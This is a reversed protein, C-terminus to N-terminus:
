ASDSSVILSAYCTGWSFEGGDDFDYYSERQGRRVVRLRTYFGDYQTESLRDQTYEMRRLRWGADAMGTPTRVQVERWDETIETATPARGGTDTAWGRFHTEYIICAEQCDEECEYFLWVAVNEGSNDFVPRLEYSGPLARDEQTFRIYRFNGALEIQPHNLDVETFNSHADPWTDLVRQLPWEGLAFWEYVTGSLTSGDSDVVSGTEEIRNSPLFVPLWLEFAEFFCITPENRFDGSLQSFNEFDQVSIQGSLSGGVLRAIGTVSGEGEFEIIRAFDVDANQCFFEIREQLEDREEPSLQAHSANVALLFFLCFAPILRM